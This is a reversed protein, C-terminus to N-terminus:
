ACLRAYTKKSAFPVLVRQCEGSCCEKNDQCSYNSPLCNTQAAAKSSLGFCALAMGALGVGFRKLAQRRTTTKALGKALADFKNNM